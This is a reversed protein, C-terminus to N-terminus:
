CLLLLTVLGRSRGLLIILIRYELKQFQLKISMSVLFSELGDSLALTSGHMVTNPHVQITSLLLHINEIPDMSIRCSVLDVWDLARLQVVQGNSTANGWAGFMSCAGKTLEGIMHVRKFYKYDVGSGDSIGRMEEYYKRNTFPKTIMYNLELVEGLAM